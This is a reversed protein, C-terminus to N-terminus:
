RVQLVGAAILTEVKRAVDPDAMLKQAAAPDSQMAQLASQMNPDRLIAQIEPDELARKQREPDAEGSMNSRAIAMRTEQMGEKLEDSDPSIVLGQKYTEIAKHYQKLFFQIKAKRLYAKVFTPELAIAKEADEMAKGWEMLKVFAAARNSYIKADNPNRRIAETYEEIAPVWKGEQFHKNGEEKHYLSKEPNIYNENDLKKKLERIKDRKLEIKRDYKEVLSKEFASIAEEYKKL